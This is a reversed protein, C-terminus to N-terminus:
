EERNCVVHWSIRSTIILSGLILVMPEISTHMAVFGIMCAILISGITPKVMSKILRNAEPQISAKGVLRNGSWHLMGDIIDCQLAVVSEIVIQKEHRAALRTM